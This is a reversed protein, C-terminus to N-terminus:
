QHAKTFTNKRQKNIEGQDAIEDQNVIVSHIQNQITCDNEFNQM